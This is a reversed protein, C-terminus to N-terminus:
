GEWRMVATRALHITHGLGPIISGTLVSYTIGVTVRVENQADPGTITITAAGLGGANLVHNAAAEVLAQDPGTVAAVRVGQWAAGSLTAMTMWLRGFEIIGMVIMILIPALLAFEVLAQGCTHKGRIRFHRM